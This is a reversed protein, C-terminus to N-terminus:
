YKIHNLKELFQIYESKKDNISRSHIKGLVYAQDYLIEESYESESKQNKIATKQFNNKEKLTFCKGELFKLSMSKTLRNYFFIEQAQEIVQEQIFSLRPFEELEILTLESAFDKRLLILIKMGESQIQSPFFKVDLVESKSYLGQIMQKFIKATLNGNSKDGGKIYASVKNMEILELNIRNIRKFPILKEKLESSFEYDSNQVGAIYALNHKKLDLAQNKEKAKAFHDEKEFYLSGIKSNNFYEVSYFVDGNDDKIMVFNNPSINGVIIGEISFIENQNGEIDSSAPSRNKEKVFIKSQSIKFPISLSYKTYAFALVFIIPIYVWKM